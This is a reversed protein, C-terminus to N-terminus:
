EDDGLVRYFILDYLELYRNVKFCNFYTDKNRGRLMSGFCIFGDELEEINLCYLVNEIYEKNNLYEEITLKKCDRTVAKNKTIKITINKM